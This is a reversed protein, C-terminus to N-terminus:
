AEILRIERLREAGVFSLLTEKTSFHPVFGLKEKAKSGDAVCLYRLFNVHTAPAPSFDAYWLLQVLTKFGIQPLEIHIKGAIKIIRSLPLVGDGVINFIGRCEKEIALKFARILDDEHLFQILPDFGLVTAVFFRRLLRTKYTQITPGFISCPRLITVSCDPHKKAYRLAQNEADIRDALFKSQRDGRPMHVDELLFNPNNPFAGYVDTTSAMIIKKIRAEACANLIYMTGISILEHAYSQSKPPTVPMACHIVTDVKEKKFVEALMVDALTETLNIKHFNTKKTQLAPKKHDVAVVVKVAPDADLEKLIHLGTFSATGVVAITQNKSNKAPQSPEKSM